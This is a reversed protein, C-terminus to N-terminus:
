PKKPTTTTTGPTAATGTAAGKTASAAVQKQLATITAANQTQQKQLTSISQQLTATSANLTNQTDKSNKTVASQLADVRKTLADLDGKKASDNHATLGFYLGAGGAALAIVVAAAGFYTLRGQRRELEAMWGQLGQMREQLNPDPAKTAAAKAAAPKAEANAAAPKATGTTTAEKTKAEASAKAAKRGRTARAARGRGPLTVRPM